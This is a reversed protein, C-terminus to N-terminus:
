KKVEPTLQINTKNDEKGFTTSFSIISTARVMTLVRYCNKTRESVRGTVLPLIVTTANRELRLIVNKKKHRSPQCFTILRITKLFHYLRQLSNVIMRLATSVWIVCKHFPNVNKMPFGAKTGIHKECLKTTFFLKKPKKGKAYELLLFSLFFFATLIKITPKKTANEEKM